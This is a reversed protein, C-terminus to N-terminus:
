TKIFAFELDADLYTSMNKFPLKFKQVSQNKKVVLSVIDQGSPKNFLKKMCKLQPNDLFGLLLIELKRDIKQEKLVVRKSRHNVHKEVPTPVDNDVLFIDIFSVIKSQLKNKPAKIV